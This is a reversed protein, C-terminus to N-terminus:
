SYTFPICPFGKLDIFTKEWGTSGYYNFLVWGKNKVRLWIVSVETKNDNYEDHFKAILPKAKSVDTIHSKVQYWVTGLSNHKAVGDYIGYYDNASSVFRGKGICRMTRQAPEVVYHKLEYIKKVEKEANDGKQKKSVM